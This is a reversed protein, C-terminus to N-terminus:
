FDNVEASESFPAVFNFIKDFNAQRQADESPMAVESSGRTWRVSRVTTAARFSVLTTPLKETKVNVSIWLCVLRATIANLMVSRLSWGGPVGLVIRAVTVSLHAHGRM